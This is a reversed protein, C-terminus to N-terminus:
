TPIFLKHFEHHPMAYNFGPEFNQLRKVSDDYRYDNFFDIFAVMSYRGATRTKGNAVVRHWLAKLQGKSFHQLAMSPFLITRKESVLWPQWTGEFTFYEGGSETENLHLTFGGRDAHGHALTDGAIYHVYRFVWQDQAAIVRAAFGPLRYVQQVNRAFHSVIPITEAILEDVVDIFLVARSDHIKAAITRLKEIQVRSVHFLEKADANPGKDERLMYGFDKIRNGGSFLRKQELPLTCFRQWSAMADHVIQMNPPRDCAVFGDTPLNSIDIHM